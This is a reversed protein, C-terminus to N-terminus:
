RAAVNVRQEYRVEFVLRGRNFRFILGDGNVSYTARGWTGPVGDLTVGGEDSTYRGRVTGYRYTGDPLLTLEAFTPESQAGDITVAVSQYHRETLPGPRRARILEIVILKGEATKVWMRWSNGAADKLDYPEGLVTVESQEFGGERSARKIGNKAKIGFATVELDADEPAAAAARELSLHLGNSGSFVEAAAPTALLVLAALLAAAPRMNGKRSQLGAAM